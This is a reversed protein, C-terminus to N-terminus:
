YLRLVEAIFSINLYALDLYMDLGEWIYVRSNLLVMLCIYCGAPRMVVVRSFFERRKPNTLKKLIFYPSLHSPTLKVMSIRIKMILIIKTM